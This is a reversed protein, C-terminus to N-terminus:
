NKRFRRIGLSIFVDLFLKSKLEPDNSIFSRVEGIKGIESVSDSVHHHESLDLVLEGVSAFFQPNVVLSM